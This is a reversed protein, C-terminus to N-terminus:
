KKRRFKKLEEEFSETDHFDKYVSAFRIYAVKDIRKLKQMVLDGIIKTKIEKSKKKLLGSKIERVIEEIKKMSIPRKECAKMLSIQIKNEDFKEIKGNKKVVFLEVFRVREYTTFRKGCGLCERRRRIENKNKPNRKDVVKTQPNKCYPCLM